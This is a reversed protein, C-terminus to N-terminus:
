FGFLEQADDVVVGKQPCVIAQDDNPEVCVVVFLIRHLIEVQGGCRQKLDIVNQGTGGSFPNQKATPPTHRHDLQGPPGPLSTSQRPSLDLDGTFGNLNPFLRKSSFGFQDNLLYIFM